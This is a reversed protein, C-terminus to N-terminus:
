LLSLTSDKGQHGIDSHLGRLVTERYCSPLVLQLIKENKDQVERYIVGRVIKFTKFKQKMIQDEKTLYTYKCPLRKDIM